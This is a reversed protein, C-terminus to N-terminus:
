CARCLASAVRALDVHPRGVLMPDLSRVLALVAVDPLTIGGAGTPSEDGPQASCARSCTSPGHGRRSSVLASRVSSAHGGHRGAAFGGRGVARQGGVGQGPQARAREADVDM